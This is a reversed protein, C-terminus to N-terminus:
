CLCAPDAGPCGLASAQGIMNNFCTQGCVPLSSISTPTPIVSTTTPASSPSAAACWQAEFALVVAGVTAGCAGISCDHMGDQFNTVQCLCAPDATPCGLTSAQALMNSFCTQGCQPLTSISTPTSGLSTATPTSSSIIATALAAACWQAEFALVYAGIASGCAAISCDHMGDQFNTVQCLCAPDATPCGLSPAQGIM